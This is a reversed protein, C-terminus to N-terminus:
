TWSSVQRGTGCAYCEHDDTEISKLTKGGNKPCAPAIQRRHRCLEWCELTGPVYCLM